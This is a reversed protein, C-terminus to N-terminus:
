FKFNKFNELVAIMTDQCLDECDVNHYGLNRRFFVLIRESYKTFLVEETKKDGNQIKTLLNKEEKETM